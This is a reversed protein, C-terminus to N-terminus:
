LGPFTAGYAGALYKEIRFCTASDHVAPYALVAAISGQWGDAGTSDNGVRIALNSGVTDTNDTGAALQSGDARIVWAGPNAYSWSIVHFDATGPNYNVSGISVQLDLAMQLQPTANPGTLRLHLQGSAAGGVIGMFVGTAPITTAKVVAYYQKMVAGPYAVTMHDTSQWTMSAPYTASYAAKNAGTVQTADRSNGSIDSWTTVAAADAFPGTTTGAPMRADLWLGPGPSAGMNLPITASMATNGALTYLDRVADSLQNLNAANAPTAQSPKNEWTPVTVVV